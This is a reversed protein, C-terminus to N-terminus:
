GDLSPLFETNVTRNPDHRITRELAALAAILLAQKRRPNLIIDPRVIRNARNVAVDVSEIQDLKAETVGLPPSRPDPLRRVIRRVQQLKIEIPIQVLDSRRAPELTFGAAIQLQDPQQPVQLRAIPRNRVEALLVPSGQLRRVTTEDKQQLLDPQDAPSQDRDVARQEVAIGALVTDERTPLEGFLDGLEILLDIRVALREVGVVRRFGLPRAVALIAVLIAAIDPVLDLLQHGPTFACLGIQFVQVLAVLSLHRLCIGIRPQQALAVLRDRAVIDLADDVVLMIQDDGALDYIAAICSVKM